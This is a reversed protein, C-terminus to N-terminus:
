VLTVPIGCADATAHYDPDERAAEVIFESSSNGVFLHNFMVSSSYYGIVKRYPHALLHEELIGTIQLEQWDPAEAAIHEIGRRNKPHLRYRVPHGLAKERAALVFERSIGGLGGLVLVEDSPPAEAPRVPVIVVKEPDAHIQRAAFHYVHSLFPSYSGSKHRVDAPEVGLLQRMVWDPLGTGKAKGPLHRLLAAGDPIMNYETSACHRDLLRRLAYVFTDNYYPSYVRVDKGALDLAAFAAHAFRWKGVKKGFLRTLADSADAHVVRHSAGARREIGERPQYMAYAVDSLGLHEILLTSFYYQFGTSLVFLNVTM